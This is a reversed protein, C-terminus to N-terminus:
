GATELARRGAVPYCVATLFILTAEISSPSKSNRSQTALRHYYIHTDPKLGIPMGPYLGPAGLCGFLPLPYIM